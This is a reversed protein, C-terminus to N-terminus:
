FKWFTHCQVVTPDVVSVRMAQDLYLGGPIINTYELLLKVNAIDSDISNAVGPYQVKM